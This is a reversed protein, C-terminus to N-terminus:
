GHRTVALSGQWGPTAPDNDDICGTTTDGTAPCLVANPTPTTFNVVPSMGVTVSCNAPTFAVANGAPDSEAVAIDNQGQAFLVNPFTAVGSM